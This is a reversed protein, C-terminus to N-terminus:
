LQTFFHEAQDAILHQDQGGILLYRYGRQTWSASALGEITALRINKTKLTDAKMVCLAIPTELKSLFALQILPQGKFGLIQARKYDLDSLATLTKLPFDKGIVSAVRKLEQRQQAQAPVIHDLTRNIYLVQYEAVSQHWPIPQQYDHVLWGGVLGIGLIVAAAVSQHWNYSPTDGKPAWEDNSKPAQKLLADFAQKIETKDLQLKDLRQQLTADQALAQSIAQSKTTDLEGDLYATLQEDSYANSHKM